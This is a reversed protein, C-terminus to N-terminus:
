CDPRPAAVTRGDLAVHIYVTTAVRDGDEDALTVTDVTPICHCGADLYHWRADDRPRVHLASGDFEFEIKWPGRQQKLTM